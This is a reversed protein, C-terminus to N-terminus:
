GEWLEYSRLAARTPLVKGDRREVLGDTALQDLVAEVAARAGADGPQVNLEDVLAAHTLEMPHLMVLHLLLASALRRDDDHANV